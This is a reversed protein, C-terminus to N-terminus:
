VFSIYNKNIIANYIILSEKKINNMKEEKFNINQKITETSVSYLNTGQGSHLSRNHGYAMLRVQNTNTSYQFFIIVSCKRYLLKNAVIITIKDQHLGTSIHFIETDNIKKSDGNFLKFLECNMKEIALTPPALYEIIQKNINQENIFKMYAIRIWKDKNNIMFIGQSNDDSYTYYKFVIELLDDILLNKCCLKFNHIDPTPIIEIINQM